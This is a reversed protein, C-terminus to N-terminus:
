NVTNDCFNTAKLKELLMNHNITDFGKQLDILITGAFLGNDFSNLKRKM